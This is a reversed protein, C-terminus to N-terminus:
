LLMMNGITSSIRFVAYAACVAMTSKDISDLLGGRKAKYRFNIIGVYAMYFMLIMSLQQVNVAGNGMISAFGFIGLSIGSFIPFFVTTGLLTISNINRYVAREKADYDDLADHEKEIELLASQLDTGEDVSCVMATVTSNLLPSNYSLLRSFATKANGSYRYVKVAERLTNAFMYSDNISKNIRTIICGEYNNHILNELFLRADHNIRRIGTRGIKEDILFFALATILCLLTPTIESGYALAIASGCIAAAISIIRLCVERGMLM